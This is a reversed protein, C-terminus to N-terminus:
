IMWEESIDASDRAVGMTEELVVECCGPVLHAGSVTVCASEAAAQM